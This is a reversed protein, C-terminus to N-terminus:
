VKSWQDFDIRIFTPKKRKLNKFLNRIRNFESESNIIVIEKIKDNQVIMAFLEEDCESSLGHIVLRDRIEKLLGYDSINFQTLLFEKTKEIDKIYEQNTFEFNINMKKRFDSIHNNGIRKNNSTSSFLVNPFITIGKNAVVDLFENLEIDVESKSTHLWDNYIDTEEGKMNFSGHLPHIIHQENTNKPLVWANDINTTFLNDFSRLWNHVEVPYTKNKFNRKVLVNYISDLYIFELLKHLIVFETFRKNEIIKNHFNCSIIIKAIVEIDSKNSYDWQRTSLFFQFKKDTPEKEFSNKILKIYETLFISYSNNSLEKTIEGIKLFFLKDIENSIENWDYKESKFAEINLGNGFIINRQM